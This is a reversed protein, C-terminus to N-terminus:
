QASSRPDLTMTLKWGGAVRGNDSGADDIVYVGWTGNPSIGNFASLSNNVQSLSVRPFRKNTKNGFPRYRGSQASSLSTAADDDFTLSAHRFNGCGELNTILIVGQGNPGVLLVSLDDVCTHNLDLIEVTLKQITGSMGSIAIESPYPTAPGLNPIVIPNTNSNIVEYPTSEPTPSPSPQASEPGANNNLIFSFFWAFSVLLLFGAFMPLYRFRWDRLARNNQSQRRVVRISKVGVIRADVHFSGSYQGVLVKATFFDGGNMLAPEVTVVKDEIRLSVNLNDPSAKVREASLVKSKDRLQLTIPREFDSSTIPVNGSNFFKVLLLHVNEVPRGGYLVQLDGKIEAAISVLPYESLVEYSLAKRKRTLLYLTISLGVAIISAVAGIWEASGVFSLVTQM